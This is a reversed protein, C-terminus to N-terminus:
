IVWVQFLWSWPNMMFIPFVVSCCDTEQSPFHLTKYNM